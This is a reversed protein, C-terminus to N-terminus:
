KWKLKTEDRRLLPGRVQGPVMCQTGQKEFKLQANGRNVLLTVFSVSAEYVVIQPIESNLKQCM